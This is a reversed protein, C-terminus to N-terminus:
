GLDIRKRAEALYDGDVDFGVFPLGLRRCAVGTSGIGLFPDLVLRTRERSHLKLCMEALEVPFSAPHPRDKRRSTITRYPIFWTNGRCRRDQGVGWRGINSKDQYPVGVALRDVSVDGTKTFHFIFEYASHLFRRGRLPKYHGVAMDELIQPYSRLTYKPLVISKVWVIQNQLVFHSRFRSAVDFPLWPNKGTGGINLFVSGDDALVRKIERVVLEMWDLYDAPSKRDDYASYATGLNYPPSTVVADVSGDALRARMGALCDETFLSV